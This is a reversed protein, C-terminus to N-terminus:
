DELKGTYTKGGWVMTIEKPSIYDITQSEGTKPNTLTTGSIVARDWYGKICAESGDASLMSRVLSSWPAWKFVIFRHWAMIFLRSQRLGKGDAALAEPDGM